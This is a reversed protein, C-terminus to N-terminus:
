GGDVAGGQPTVLHWEGYEDSVGQGNVQGAAQDQAYHYLPHGNFTVQTTGDNRPTTGISAQALSPDLAKPMGQSALLPPWARACADHCTSTGDADKELLYLSKGTADVLYRGYQASQAVGLDAGTRNPQDPVAPPPTPAPAPASAVAPAEAPTPQLRDCGLGALTVVLIASLQRSTRM